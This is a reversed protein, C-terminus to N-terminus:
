RTKSRLTKAFYLLNLSQLNATPQYNASTVLDTTM